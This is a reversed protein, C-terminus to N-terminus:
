DNALVVLSILRKKAGPAVNVEDIPDMYGVHTIPTKGGSIGEVSSYGENDRLRELGDTWPAINGNAASDMTFVFAKHKDHASAYSEVSRKGHEAAGHDIRVHYMSKQNSLSDINRGRCRTDM